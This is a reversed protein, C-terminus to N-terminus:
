AQYTIVVNGSIGNLNQVWVWHSDGSELTEVAIAKDNFYATDVVKGRPIPGLRLRMGEVPNEFEFRFAQRDEYREYTYKIQQRKKGTCVPYSEISMSTWEAPYRPVIRLQEPNNDDIGLMLRIAKTSDAVHSDQGMYGNVPLYYRGSRHLIIGEPSIWRGFGPLYCHRLLRGVFQAADEMEDLLLASQAMMGQGYGYMRLCNYNKDKMLYKYTNLSIELFRRDTDDGAAYEELPTYTDGETALQIHVLKHAHDQWETEHYTHWVPGFESEDTLHDLIGNRLREYLIKWAEAETKGLQEAMRIALKVGHLCNYTSYIDYDGHACESETYLIDKRAGPRINDNDLQWQIWEVSAKTAEWHQENWLKQRGLWHWVMYRGWMCIGHGDNERNGREEVKGVMIKQTYAGPMGAVRNWHPPNAEKFLADDLWSIYSNIFKDYGFAMAERLLEGIGRTWAGNIGPLKGPERESYLKFWEKLGDYIPKREIWVGMGLTYHNLAWKATSSSCQTGTDAIYAGCEPGNYYLYTAAYVAEQSGRFDYGPGFYGEPIEPTKLEPLDDEFTYFLRMIKEIGTLYNRNKVYEPDVVKASIKELCIEPLIGLDESVSETELTIGSILPYGYFEDVGKIEFAKVAKGELNLSFVYRASCSNSGMLRIGDTLMVENQILERYEEKGCFLKDDFNFATNETRYPSYHWIMDWPRGYWINFGFILPVCFISGDMWEIIIEGAKDGVFHSYGEDGKKSYWSGNGIDINHIMGLFHATKVEAGNCEMRIGDNWVKLSGHDHGLELSEFDAGFFRNDMKRALFPIGHVTLYEGQETPCLARFTKSRCLQRSGIIWTRMVRTNFLQLELKVSPMSETFILEKCAYFLNKGEDEEVFSLEEIRGNVRFGNFHDYNNGISGGAKKDLFPEYEFKVIYTGASLKLEQYFSKAQNNELWPERTQIFPKFYETERWNGTIDVAVTKNEM